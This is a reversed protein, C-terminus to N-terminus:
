LCQGVHEWAEGSAIEAESWQCWALWEAWGRRAPRLPEADLGQAAVAWAMAGPDGAMVPVGLLVCDTLGNSNWAVALGVGELDEPLTGGSRREIRGPLFPPSYGRAREVPHQRFAVEWGLDHLRQAAEVYWAAINVGELSMDGRVQGLILAVRGGERWPRIAGPHHRDLRQGGAGAPPFIARGNLGDWGLSTWAMRDGIYGREMVLVRLGRARLRRGHRWGWCAAFDAGAVQDSDRAVVTEIGHRALGSMLAAAWAEQHSGAKAVIAARM